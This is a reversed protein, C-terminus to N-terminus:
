CGDGISFAVNFFEITKGSFQRLISSVGFAEIRHTM